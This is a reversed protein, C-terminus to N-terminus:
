ARSRGPKKKADREAWIKEFHGSKEKYLLNGTTKDFTFQNDNPDPCIALLDITVDVKEALLIVKAIESWSGKLHLETPTNPDFTPM